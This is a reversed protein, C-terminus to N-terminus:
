GFDFRTVIGGLTGVEHMQTSLKQCWIANYYSSFGNIYAYAIWGGDSGPPLCVMVLDFIDELNSFSPKNFLAAAQDEAQSQLANRTAGTANMSITVDVVGLGSITSTQDGNYPEIQLQNYSCAAYRSKLCHTDNFIDTYLEDASAPANGDGATVRVVLTHLGSTALNRRQRRQQGPFRDDEIRNEIDLVDKPEVKITKDNIIETGARITISTKGSEAGHLQLWDKIQTGQLEKHPPTGTVTGGDLGLGLGLGLKEEGPKHCEWIEESENNGHDVVLMWLDCKTDEQLHWSSSFQFGQQQKSGGEGEGGGRLAHTHCVLVSLLTAFYYFKM